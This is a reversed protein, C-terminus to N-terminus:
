LKVSLKVRSSSPSSYGGAGQQNAFVESVPKLRFGGTFNEMVGFASEIGVSYFGSLDGNLFFQILSQISAKTRHWGEDHRSTDVLQYWGIFETSTNKKDSSRLYRHVANLLVESRRLQNNKGIGWSSFGMETVAIKKEPWNNALLGELERLDRIDDAASLAWQGPYMDLGVIDIAPGAHQLWSFLQRQWGPVASLVNVVTLANPCHRRVGEGGILFLKFDDKSVPDFIHNAENWLQFYKTDRPAISSVAYDVFSEYHKWFSEPRERLLQTAWTPPGSLIILLDFDYDRIKQFYQRYFEAMKMDRKDALPEILHWFIDTRIGSFGLKKAQSLIKELNDLQFDTEQVHLTGYMPRGWPFFETLGVTQDWGIAPDAAFLFCLTLVLRKM